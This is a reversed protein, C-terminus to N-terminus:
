RASQGSTEGCCGLESRGAEIEYAKEDAVHTHAEREKRQAEREKRQAEREKRRARARDNSYEQFIPDADCFTAFENYDVGM